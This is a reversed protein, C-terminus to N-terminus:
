KFAKGDNLSNIALMKDRLCTISERGGGHHTNQPPCFKVPLPKEGRTKQQEKNLIILIIWGIIGVGNM